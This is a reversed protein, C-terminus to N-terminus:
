NLRQLIVSLTKLYRLVGLFINFEDNKLNFMKILMSCVQQHCSFLVVQRLQLFHSFLWEALRHLNVRDNPSGCKGVNVIAEWNHLSCSFHNNGLKTIDNFLRVPCHKHFVIRIEQDVNVLLKGFFSLQFPYEKM